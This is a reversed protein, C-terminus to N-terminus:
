NAILIHTNGKGSSLKAAIESTSLNKYNEASIGAEQLMELFEAVSSSEIKKLQGRMMLVITNLAMTAGSIGRKLMTAQTKIVTASAGIGTILRILPEYKLKLKRSVRRAHAFRKQMENMIATPVEKTDIKSSNLEILHLLADTDELKGIVYKVNDSAEKIMKALRFISM